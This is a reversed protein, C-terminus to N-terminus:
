GNLPLIASLVVVTGGVVCWVWPVFPRTANPSIAIGQGLLWLGVGLAFWNISM